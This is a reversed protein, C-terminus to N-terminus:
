NIKDVSASAYDCKNCTVFEVGKKKLKDIDPLLAKFKGELYKRNNKILKDVKKIRNEFKLFHKEWCQILLRHLYFWAQIQELLVREVASKKAKAYDAHFFHVLKNRHDVIKKFANQEHSSIVESAINELRQIAETPTVSRFNGNLFDKIKASQPKDVILSWHEIMLRAKLFLEVAATFNILSQKPSKELQRAAIELFDLANETVSEFFETPNVRRPKPM